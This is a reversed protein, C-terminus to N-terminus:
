QEIDLGPEAPYIRPRARQCAKMRAGLSGAHSKSLDDPPSEERVGGRSEREFGFRFHHPPPLRGILTELANTIERIPALLKQLLDDYAGHDSRRDSPHMVM